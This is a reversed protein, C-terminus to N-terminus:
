TIGRGGGQRGPVRPGASPTPLRDAVCRGFEPVDLEHPPDGSGAFGPLVVPHARIWQGFAGLGPPLRDSVAMGQVLVVDPVGPCPRGVSRSRMRGRVSRVRGRVQPTASHRGQASQGNAAAGPLRGAVDRVPTQPAVTVLDTTM